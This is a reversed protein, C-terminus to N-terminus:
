IGQGAPSDFLSRVALYKEFVQDYLGGDSYRPDTEEKKGEADFNKYEICLDRLQVLLPQDEYKTMATKLGASIATLIADMTGCAQRWQSANESKSRGDGPDATAWQDPHPIGTHNSQEYFAIRDTPLGHEQRYAANHKMWIFYQQEWHARRRESEAHSHPAQFSSLTARYKNILGDIYNAHTQQENM